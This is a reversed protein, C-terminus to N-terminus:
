RVEEEEEERAEGQSEAERYLRRFVLLIAAPSPCAALDIM